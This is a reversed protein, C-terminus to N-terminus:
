YLFEVFLHLINSFFYIYQFYILFFSWHCSYLILHTFINLNLNIIIIHIEDTFDSDM